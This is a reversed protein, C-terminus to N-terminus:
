PLKGIVELDNSEFMIKPIFGSQECLLNLNQQFSYDMTLSIFSEEAIQSLQVTNRNALDHNPPVALYFEETVIPV